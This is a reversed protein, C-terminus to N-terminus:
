SSPAGDVACQGATVTFHVRLIASARYVRALSPDAHFGDNGFDRLLELDNMVFEALFHAAHVGLAQVPLGRRLRVRNCDQHHMCEAGLSLDVANDGVHRTLPVPIGLELHSFSLGIQQRVQIRGVRQGKALPAVLRAGDGFPGLDLNLLVVKPRLRVISSVLAAPSGPAEPVPVRRVDYGEVSLALELAEAISVHDDVIVVRVDSRPASRAM